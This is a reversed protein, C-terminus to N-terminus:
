ACASYAMASEPAVLLKKVVSAGTILTAGVVLGSWTLIGLPLNRADLWVHSNFIGCSGGSARLPCMMGPM